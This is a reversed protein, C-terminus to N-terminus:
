RRFLYRSTNSLDIKKKEKNNQVQKEIIIDIEKWVAIYGLDMNAM